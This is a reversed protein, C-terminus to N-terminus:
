RFGPPHRQFDVINQSLNHRFQDRFVQTGAAVLIIPIGGAQGAPHIEIAQLRPPRFLGALEHKQFLRTHGLRRTM